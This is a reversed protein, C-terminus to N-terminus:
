FDPTVCIDINMEKEPISLGRALKVGLYLTNQVM